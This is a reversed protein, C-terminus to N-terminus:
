MEDLRELLARLEPSPEESPPFYAALSQALSYRIAARLKASIAAEYFEASDEFKRIPMM